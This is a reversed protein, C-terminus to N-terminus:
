QQQQRQHPRLRGSWIYDNSFYTQPHMDVKRPASAALFRLFVRRLRSQYWIATFPSNGTKLMFSNKSGKMHPLTSPSILVGRPNSSKTMSEGAITRPQISELLTKIMKGQKLRCGM